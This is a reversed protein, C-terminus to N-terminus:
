QWQSAIIGQKGLVWGPEFKVFWGDYVMEQLWERCAETDVIQGNPLLCEVNWREGVIEYVDNWASVWRMEIDDEIAM